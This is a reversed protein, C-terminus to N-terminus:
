LDISPPAVQFLTKNISSLVPQASNDISIFLGVMKYAAIHSCPRVGQFTVLPPGPLPKYLDVSPPVVQFLICSPKGFSIPLIAIVTLRAFESFTYASISLSKVFSAPPIYTESFAPFVHLWAM